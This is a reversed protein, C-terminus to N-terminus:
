GLLVVGEKEVADGFRGLHPGASAVDVRVGMAEGLEVGIRALDFLSKGRPLSVVLDLDSDPRATGRVRSGHAVLRKVGNRHCVDRVAKEHARFLGLADQPGPDLLRQIVADMTRLRYQRKLAFLRDRTAPDVAVTTLM